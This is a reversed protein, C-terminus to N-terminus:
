NSFSTIIHIFLFEDLFYSVFGTNGLLLSGGGQGSGDIGDNSFDGGAALDLKDTEAGKLALDTGGAGTEVGLGLFGDLDGFALNGHELGALSELVSDLLDLPM